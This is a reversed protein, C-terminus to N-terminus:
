EEEASTYVKSIENDDCDNNTLSGDCDNDNSQEFLSNDDDDCDAATVVGDCDNDNSQALLTDDDDDCDQNVHVGDCDGDFTTYTANPNLDDCDNPPLVGDCDLDVDSNDDCDIDSTLGDCDNDISQGLVNADGDDCDGGMAETWSSVPICEVYGDGDDDVEDSPIEGDCDNDKGDCIEEFGLNVMPDTDDCDLAALFTNEPRDCAYEPASEGAEGDQDRDVFWAQADVASDDDLIGNCNTDIGDCYETASPHIDPNSDDCDENAFYGDGDLDRTKGDCGGVITLFSLLFYVRPM